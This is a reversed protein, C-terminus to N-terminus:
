RARLFTVPALDALLPAALLWLSLSPFHPTVPLPEWRVSPLSPLCHQGRETAACVLLVVAVVRSPRLPGQQEWAEQLQLRTGLAAGLDGGQQERSCSNSPQSEDSSTLILQQQNAHLQQSLRPSFLLYPNM